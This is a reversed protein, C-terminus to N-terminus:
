VGFLGDLGETGLGILVGGARVWEELAAGAAADLLGTPFDGLFLTGLGSLVGPTVEGPAISRASLGLLDCLELIYCYWYNLGAENATRQLAPECVYAADLSRAPTTTMPLITRESISPATPGDM